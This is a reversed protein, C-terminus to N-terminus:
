DNKAVKLNKKFNEIDHNNGSLEFTQLLECNFNKSIIIAAKCYNIGWNRNGSGVVYRINQKNIPKSLFYKVEIPVEGFGTTYTVLLFPENIVLDKSGIVKDCEINQMFRKINGTKSFYVVKM